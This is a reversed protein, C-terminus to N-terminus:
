NNTKLMFASIIMGAIALGAGAGFAGEYGKLSFAIGIVPPGLTQGFRLMAGAVSMFIGRMEISAKEAILTHISPVLLGNGIGFLIAPAMFLWLSDIFLIAVMSTLYSSFGIIILNSKKIYRVLIGLRSSVIATSISTSFMIIGIVLSSAGFIKGLMTSFYTLYSGYLVIFVLMVTIFIGYVEPRKIEKWANKLYDTLSQKKNIKPNKMYRLAFLGIPVAIWPLLFPHNWSLVALAGGILPYFATGISLISSNYGMISARRNGSYLDGILITGMSGLAAAGAGQLFRLILLQTYDHVFFCIGGAIGFLMLSPILVTKRGFRDAALGLVPSLLVGPFTFVTILMGVQTETLDLAEMITPFAPTISSVGLVAMLTTGFIIALNKKYYKKEELEM